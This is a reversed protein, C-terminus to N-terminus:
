VHESELRVALRALVDRAAPATSAASALTEYARSETFRERALARRIDQPTAQKFASARVLYVAVKYGRKSRPGIRMHRVAMGLRKMEKGIFEESRGYRAVLEATTWLTRSQERLWDALSISKGCHPCRDSKM